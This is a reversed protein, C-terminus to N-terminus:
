PDNVTKKSSLLFFIRIMTIDLDLGYCRLFQAHKLFNLGIQRRLQINRGVLDATIGRKLAKADVRQIGDLHPHIQFLLKADFQLQFVLDRRDALQDIEDLAFHVSIEM